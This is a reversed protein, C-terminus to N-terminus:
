YIYKQWKPEEVLENKPEDESEEGEGVAGLSPVVEVDPVGSMDKLNEERNFVRSYESSKVAESHENLLVHNHLCMIITTGVASAVWLKAMSKFGGM